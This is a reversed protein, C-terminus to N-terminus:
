SNMYSECTLFYEEKTKKRGVIEFHLIMGLKCPNWFCATPWVGHASKTQRGKEYYFSGLVQAEAGPNSVLIWSKCVKHGRPLPGFGLNGNIFHLHYYELEGSPNSNILYNTYISQTSRVGCVTPRVITKSNNYMSHKTLLEYCGSWTAVELHCTEDSARQSMLPPFLLFLNTKSWKLNFSLM